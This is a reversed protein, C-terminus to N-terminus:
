YIRVYSKLLELLKGNGLMKKADGWNEGLKEGTPALCVVQYCVAMVLPPPKAFGKIEDLDKKELNELAAAAAAVAPLAENLAIDAKGKEEVIIKNQEEAAAQKAAAVAKQEDAVKTKTTIDVILAEVDVTKASVVIQKEKLMESMRAVAEAAEVLKTLGGELRKISSSNKKRNDNLQSRYNSLLDLYNKPTVYFFRRQQDIFLKAREAISQHAFVLHSVISPRHEDPLTIDNLLYRAVKTLADEPWRFFWDIVCSSVLGPFNRCRLRLKDGSPSMALVLHLNERCRSLWYEFIAPGTTCEPDATKADKRFQNIITDIEDKEYLAPVFGTNLLGNISELFGEEQFVCLTLTTLKWANTLRTQNFIFLPGVLVHADTFLFTTPTSVLDQYLCKLDTPLPTLSL